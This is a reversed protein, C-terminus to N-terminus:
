SAFVRPGMLDPTPSRSRDEDSDYRGGRRKNYARPRRRRDDDRDDQDGGQNQAHHRAALTDRVDRNDGIRVHVPVRPPNEEHGPARASSEEQQRHRGQQRSASSEAQQVAAEELLSRLKQHVKRAEPAEPEPCGRLLLTAAALNQSARAFVQPAAPAGEDNLIRRHVDRARLQATGSTGPRLEAREKEIALQANDLEQMRDHVSKPRTIPPPSRRLRATQAPTHENATETRPREGEAVDEVRGEPTGSMFCEQSPNSGVLSLSGLSTELGRAGM